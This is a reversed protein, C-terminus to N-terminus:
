QENDKWIEYAKAYSNQDVEYKTINGASDQVMVFDGRDTMQMDVINISQSEIARMLEEGQGVRINNLLAVIALLIALSVIIALGILMCTVTFTSLVISEEISHKVKSHIGKISSM